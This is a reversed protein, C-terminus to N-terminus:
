FYICKSKQMMLNHFSSKMNKMIQTKWLSKCFLYVEIQPHLTSRTSDIM